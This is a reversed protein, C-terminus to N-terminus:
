AFASRLEIEAGDCLRLGNLEVSLKTFFTAIKEPLIRGKGNSLGSAM